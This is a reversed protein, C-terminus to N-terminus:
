SGRARPERAQLVSGRLQKKRTELSINVGQTKDKAPQTTRVGQVINAHVPVHPTRRGVDRLVPVVDAKAQTIEITVVSDM